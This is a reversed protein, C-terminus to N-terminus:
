KRVGKLIVWYIISGLLYCAFDGPDVIATPKWFPALYEWVIGACLGTLFIGRIDSLEKDVMLLLINAYSFFLLPCILDNFYCQFFFQALGATHTKLVTNNLLYAAPVCLLLVLNIPRKQIGKRLKKM